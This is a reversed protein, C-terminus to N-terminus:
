SYLKVFLVGSLDSPYFIEGIKSVLGLTNAM